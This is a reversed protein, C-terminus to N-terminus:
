FFTEFCRAFNALLDDAPESVFINFSYNILDCLVQVDEDDKATVAGQEV